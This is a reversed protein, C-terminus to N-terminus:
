FWKGELSGRFGLRLTGIGAPFPCSGAAGPHLASTLSLFILINLSFIGARNLSDRIQRPLNLKSPISTISAGGRRGTRYRARPRDSDNRPRPRRMGFRRFTGAPGHSVRGCRVSVPSVWLDAPLLPGASRPRPREARGSPRGAEAAGAARGEPPHEFIRRECLSPCLM